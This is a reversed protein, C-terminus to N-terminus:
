REAKLNQKEGLEGSKNSKWDQATMILSVYISMIMENDNDVKVNNQEILSRITKQFKDDFDKTVLKETASVITINKGKHQEVIEGTFIITLAEVQSRHIVTRAEGALEVGVPGGGVILIDEAGAVTQSFNQSDSELESVSVKISRFM